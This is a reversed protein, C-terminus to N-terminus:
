PEQKDEPYLALVNNCTLLVHETYIAPPAPQGHLIDLALKIVHQGYSSPAYDVAGVLAQNCQAIERRVHASASQGVAVTHEQRQLSEIGRVAGLTSDSNIGIILVKKGWPINRLAHIVALQSGEVDGRTACRVFDTKGLGFANRISDVQGEIRMSVLQGSEPQELCVVKDLKDHWHANVWQVAADGAIRGARYNDAGFFTAGPLPIDVGIVPVRASRFLDM